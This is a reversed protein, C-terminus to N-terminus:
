PRRGGTTTKENTEFLREAAQVLVTYADRCAHDIAVRLRRAAEPDRRDLAEARRTVKAIASALYDRAAAIQDVPTRAARAEAYFQAARAQHQREQRTPGAPVGATRARTRRRGAM